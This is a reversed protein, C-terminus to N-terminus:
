PWFSDDPMAAVSAYAAVCHLMVLFFRGYRLSGQSRARSLVWGYLPYQALALAIARASISRTTGALLMSFPFLLSAPLYSGHGGGAAIGSVVFAALGFIALALTRTGGKV